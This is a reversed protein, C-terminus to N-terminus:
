IFASNNLQIFSNVYKSFKRNRNNLGYKFILDNVYNSYKVDYKLELIIEDQQFFNSTKSNMIKIDKDISKICDFLIEKNTRYTVIIVTLDDLGTTM